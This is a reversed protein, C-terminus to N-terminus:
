PSFGEFVTTMTSNNLAKVEKFVPSEVRIEIM